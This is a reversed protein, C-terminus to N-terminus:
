FFGVSSDFCQVFVSKKRYFLCQVVGESSLIFPQVERESLFIFMEHENTKLLSSSSLIEFDAPPSTKIILQKLSPLTWQVIETFKVLFSHSIM